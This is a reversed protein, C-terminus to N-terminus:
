LLISPTAGYIPDFPGRMWITVAGSETVRVRWRTKASVPSRSTCIVATVPFYSVRPHPDPM